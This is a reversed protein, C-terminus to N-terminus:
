APSLARMLPRNRLTVPCETSCSASPHSTLALGGPLISPGSVKALGASVQTGAAAGDVTADVKVMGHSQSQSFEPKPTKVFSFDSDPQCGRRPRAVAGERVVHQSSVWGVTGDGLRVRLWDGTDALVALREGRRAHAVIAASASSEARVNLTAAGVKVSGIAKEASASVGRDANPSTEPPPAPASGGCAALGVATLAVAIWNGVGRM